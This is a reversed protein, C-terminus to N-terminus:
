SESGDDASSLRQPMKQLLRDLDDNLEQLRAEAQEVRLFYTAFEFAIMALLEESSKGKFRRQWNDWLSNVYREAKRYLEEQEREVLLSMAPLHALHITIKLKETM